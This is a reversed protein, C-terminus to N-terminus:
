GWYAVVHPVPQGLKPLVTAHLVLPALHRPNLFSLALIHPLQQLALVVNWSLGHRGARPPSCFTRVNSSPSTRHFAHMPLMATCSCCRRCVNAVVLMLLIGLGCEGTGYAYFGAQSFFSEFVKRAGKEWIPTVYFPVTHMISLVLCLYAAWRHLVNLREHSIGTVITILNAKMSLGVIWPLLAVAMMGSRIALPPSGFAISKWFLPQPLCCYLLGVAFALFVIVIVSLSPFVIPRWGKRVNIQRVPRYFVFRFLAVLSNIPGVSSVSSQTKPGSPLPGERPFFKMTSKDTYLVSMEYDTDPSSTTSSQLVEEQHLATRIKDTFLHYYRMMAAITLLPICFYVYALAYKGSKSWPDVTNAEILGPPSTSNYPIQIRRVLSSVVDALGSQTHSTTAGIQTLAVVTDSIAPM